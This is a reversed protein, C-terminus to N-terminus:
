EDKREEIMAQKRQRKRERAQQKKQRTQLMIIVRDLKKAQGDQRGIMGRQERQWRGCDLRLNKLKKAQNNMKQEIRRQEIKVQTMEEAIIILHQLTHGIAQDPSLRENEWDKIIKKLPYTGM